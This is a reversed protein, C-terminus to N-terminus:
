REGGSQHPVLRDQLQRLNDTAAARCSVPLVLSFTSGNGPESQVLIQGGHGEVLAKSIFLGLGMGSAAQERHLRSFPQFLRQRQEASMGLGRDSVSVVAEPDARRVAVSVEGGQPSYNVANRV